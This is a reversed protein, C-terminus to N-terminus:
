WRPSLSSRDLGELFLVVGGGSARRPGRTTTSAHASVRNTRYPQCARKHSDRHNCRSVHGSRKRPRISRQHSREGISAILSIERTDRPASTRLRNRDRRTALTMVQERRLGRGITAAKQRHLPGLIGLGARMQRSDSDVPAPRSRDRKRGLELTPCVWREGRITLAECEHGVPDHPLGPEVSRPHPLILRLARQASPLQTANPPRAPRGIALQYCDLHGDAALHRTAGRRESGPM